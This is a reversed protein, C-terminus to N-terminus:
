KRQIRNKKFISKMLYYTYEGKIISEASLLSEEMFIRHLHFPLVDEKLGSIGFSLDVLKQHNYISDFFAYSIKDDSFPFSFYSKKIQYNNKLFEISERTQALQENFELYKYEPHDKSHAGITFGMELLNKVDESTLYVQKEKLYKGFDIKMIRAIDDVTNRQDYKIALLRDKILKGGICHIDLLDQIEGVQKEDLKDLMGILLSVKYRYFLERNDIFDTNLFFTAPIGLSKLIPAIVDVSEKLGDDFTVHFVPQSFEKDQTIHKYIDDITVPTYYKAFYELDKKFMNVSRVSYLHKIYPLQEDSVTHYYPLLLKQGSLNMLLRQNFIRALYKINKIVM